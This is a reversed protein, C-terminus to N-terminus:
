VVARKKRDERDRRQRASAEAQKKARESGGGNASTELSHKTTKGRREEGTRSGKERGKRSGGQSPFFNVNLIPSVSLGRVV